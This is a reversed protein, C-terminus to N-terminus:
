RSRTQLPLVNPNVAKSSVPAQFSLASGLRGQRVTYGGVEASPDSGLTARDEPHAFHIYCAKTEFLSLNESDHSGFVVKIKRLKPRSLPALKVIRVISSKSYNVVTFRAM